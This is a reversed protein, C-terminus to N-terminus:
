NIHSASGSAERTLVLYPFGLLRRAAGAIVLDSQDTRDNEYEDEAVYSYDGEIKSSQAYTNSFFSSTVVLLLTVVLKQM